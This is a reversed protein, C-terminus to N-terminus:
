MKNLADTSPVSSAPKIDMSEVGQAANGRPYQFLKQANRGKLNASGISRFSSTHSQHTPRVGM